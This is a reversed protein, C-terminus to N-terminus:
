RKSARPLFAIGVCGIGHLYAYGLGENLTDFLSQWGRTPHRKMTLPTAREKLDRWAEPDLLQLPREYRLYLRQVHESEQVNRDFSQFYADPHTPDPVAAKLQRLRPFMEVSPPLLTSSTM